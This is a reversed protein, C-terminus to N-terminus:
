KQLKSIDATKLFLQNLQYLLALRNNKVAEDDCMVMVKDFFTDVDNKLTALEALAKEYDNNNLLPKLKNKMKELSTALKKEASESLLENKIENNFNDNAQKLINSIRKNAASLSDAEPLKRFNQVAIVRKHFDYPRTPNRSIVAEFTDTSIGSDLYYRRLREMMFEFVENITRNSQLQTNFTATSEQLLQYLDLDLNCEIIIRLVGLAARRLAFPDKEGTPAMGIVFIGCITDLKDAISISQGIITEPVHDGAFRPLYHEEIADAVDASEGDHRALYKGIIGQLEPFEGVLCTVLDCKALQTARRVQTKNCNTNIAIFEALKEVRQMKEAITGLKNQFVIGDLSPIRSALSLSKDTQWFFIADTLRPVIVRENGKRIKEQDKSEINAITIFAPLLKGSKKDRIPFYRQQDELTAILIEEPLELFKLDYNGNIAVPWEVLASIEAVLDSEPESNLAVGKLKDALKTAQRSIEQGLSNELDNVRVKADFLVQVYESPSKLKIPKPHHFRHGYTHNGSQIGLIECDIVESGFLIVVWHVPRVFEAFGSSWRMRKPVPLRALADNLIVPVLETATKGPQQFSFFLKGDKKELHEITTGCSRAFGEAARTPNGEKDYAVNIAPGYRDIYQDPQQIIVDHALLALRRPSYFLETEDSATILGDASLRSKCEHLFSYALTKLVKPPLEETGIEILLDRTKSSM